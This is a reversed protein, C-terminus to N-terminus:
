RPERGRGDLFADVERRTPMSPQAGARTVSLSAAACAFPIAADLPAGDALAVALAGNFADGAATTDVARVAPAPFDRADDATVLRAGRAGRKVIVAPAGRDILARALRDLDGASLRAPNGQHGALAALETENPTVLSALGLLERPLPAAPAPDLVVQAGAGRALRAAALVTELPIELQLLLVQAGRIADRSEDLRAPTLTGNAGAVVVISNEAHADTTIVAVGSSVGADARVRGVDVGAGALQARLWEGHGDAGVQGILVVAGGLRAAACAQNGGKGGPYVAFTHGRITEGPAPFREVRTVLDANLSGVVVISRSSTM